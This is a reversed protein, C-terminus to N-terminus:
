IGRAYRFKRHVAGQHHCQSVERVIIKFLVKCGVKLTPLVPNNEGGGQGVTGLFFSEELLIAALYCCSLALDLQDPWQREAPLVIPRIDTILDSFSTEHEHGPGGHTKWLKMSTDLVVTPKGSNLQGRKPHAHRGGTWPNNISVAQPTCPDSSPGRGWLNLQQLYVSVQWVAESDAQRATLTSKSAAELERLVKVCRTPKPSYRVSGDHAQSVDCVVGLLEQIQIPRRRKCKSMSPPPDPRPNCNCQSCCAHQCAPLPIGIDRHV